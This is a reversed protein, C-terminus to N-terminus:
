CTQCRCSVLGRVRYMGTSTNLTNMYSCLKHHASEAATAWQPDPHATRVFEALDIVKCLLNSLRDLDRVVRLADGSKASEIRQVLRSASSSTSNAIKEFDSPKRLRREGFLGTPPGRSSSSAALSSDIVDRLEAFDKSGRYLDAHPQPALQFSRWQTVGQLHRYRKSLPAAVSTRM